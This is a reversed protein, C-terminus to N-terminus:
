LVVDKSVVTRLAYGLIQSLKIMYIFSAIRSPNGPPQQFRRAPDPHDWYEDDVEIPLDLDLSYLLSYCHLKIVFGVSV